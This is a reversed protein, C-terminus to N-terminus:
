TKKVKNEFFNVTRNLPHNLVIALTLLVILLSLLLVIFAQQEPFLRLLQTVDDFADDGGNSLNLVSVLSSVASVLTLLLVTLGSFYFYYNGHIMAIVLPPFWLGASIMLTAQGLSYEKLPIVVHASPFLEVSTPVVGMLLAAFVHGSEHLVPYIILMIFLAIIMLVAIQCVIKVFM